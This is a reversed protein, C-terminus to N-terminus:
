VVSQSSTLTEDSGFHKLMGDWIPRGFGTNPDWGKTAPFGNDCSTKSNGQTIDEFAEGPFQQAIKWLRRVVFDVPSPKEANFKRLLKQSGGSFTARVSDRLSSVQISTPAAGQEILWTRTSAIDDDSAGILSAIDDTSLFKLYEEHDPNAIDWFKKEFKDLNKQKLHAVIEHEGARLAHVDNLLVLASLRLSQM